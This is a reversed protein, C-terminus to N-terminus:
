MVCVEFVHTRDEVTMNNLESALLTDASKLPHVDQRDNVDYTPSNPDSIDM